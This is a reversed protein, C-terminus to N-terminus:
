AMMHQATHQATSHQATSHQATSHQATSHKATGTKITIWRSVSQEMLSFLGTEATVDSSWVTLAGICQCLFVAYRGAIKLTDEIKDIRM